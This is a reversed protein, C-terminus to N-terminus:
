PVVCCHLLDPLAIQVLFAISLWKTNHYLYCLHCTTTVRTVSQRVKDYLSTNTTPCRPSSSSWRLWPAGTTCSASAGCGLDCLSTWRHATIPSSRAPMSWFTTPPRSSTPPTSGCWRSPSTPARAGSRCAWRRKWPAWWAVLTESCVNKPMGSQASRVTCLFFLSSPLSHCFPTLVSLLLLMYLDVGAAARQACLDYILLLSRAHAVM